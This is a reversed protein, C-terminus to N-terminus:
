VPASDGIGLRRLRSGDAEVTLNKEQTPLVLGVPGDKARRLYKVQTYYLDARGATRAKSFFVALSGADLLVELPVSKGPRNRIFVFGGPVDRTHLWWDNGRVHRRLLTDNERANRGVLITFGGSAFELGPREAERHAGGRGTTQTERELARLEELSMTAIAERRENADAIRGSLASASADLFARSERARRARDYYRQANAAAPQLPDLQIRVTTGPELYDDAVLWELGATVRHTNALILDGWHQLDDARDSTRGGEIEAQRARLRALERELAREVRAVLREREREREIRTYEEEIQLNFTREPDRRRPPRPPRAAAAEGPPEPVWTRGSEIGEGPKRLAADLIKGARDTVIINARPGWMRLYILTEEGNRAVVLRVIRDGYLHEVGVIRGGRVRSVLFDEFRQHSRRRRVARACRHLRVGPHAISLALWWQAGPTYLDLYLTRVEHQIVQQITADVLPLEALILDIEAANLSM